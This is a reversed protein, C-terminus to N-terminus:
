FINKSKTESLYANDPLYQITHLFNCWIYFGPPSAYSGEPNKNIRGIVRNPLFRFYFASFSDLNSSPILLSVAVSGLFPAAKKSVTKPSEVVATEAKADM